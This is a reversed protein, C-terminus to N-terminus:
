HIRDLKLSVALEAIGLEKSEHVLQLRIKIRIEGPQPRVSRHFRQLFDDFEVLLVGRLFHWKEPLFIEELGFRFPRQRSRLVDFSDLLVVFKRALFSDVRRHVFMFQIGDHRGGAAGRPKRIDYVAIGKASAARFKRGNGAIGIDIDGSSKVIAERYADRKKSPRPALGGEDPQRIGILLRRLEALSRSEQRVHLRSEHRTLRTWRGSKGNGSTVSEFGRADCGM